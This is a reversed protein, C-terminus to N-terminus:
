IGPGSFPEAMGVVIRRTGSYPARGHAVLMNDVMLLDGKRWPFSITEQRYIERLKDLVSPEITSGDGYYTSYPLNEEGVEALLTERLSPELTSSHFFTGHNFWVVEGTRPHTAVAERVYSTRLGGSTWATEIGARGCYQDVEDKRETKFAVQWSLGLGDGYNRVYMIKKRRFNERVALPISEYVKRCDALPTEGGREAPVLCLFYLKMPWSDCHSNENHLFITQGAPYDTSTYINGSVHTRPTAAERYEAWEDSTANIFAEFEEVSLPKFDRFLIAGRSILSAEVFNRNQSAWAILDLGDVSPKVVLPMGGQGSHLADTRILSEGAGTLAERRTPPLRKTPRQRSSQEM